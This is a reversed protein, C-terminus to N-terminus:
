LCDERDLKCQLELYLGSLIPLSPLLIVKFFHDEYLAVDSAPSHSLCLVLCHSLLEREIAGEKIGENFLVFASECNDNLPVPPRKM